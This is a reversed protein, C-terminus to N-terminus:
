IEVAGKRIIVPKGSTFEVITSPLGLMEIDHEFEIYLVKYGFTELISEKTELPPMDSINASTNLLPMKIFALFELLDPYKPIRVGLTEGKEDPKTYLKKQSRFIIALAGPFYKKMLDLAEDTIGYVYDYIQEVSYALLYLPKDYSRGKLDFLNKVAINSLGNVGLGMVTDTKFAIIGNNNLHRLAKEYIEKM